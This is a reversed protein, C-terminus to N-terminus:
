RGSSLDVFIFVFFLIYIDPVHNPRVIM